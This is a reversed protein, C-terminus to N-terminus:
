PALRRIRWTQDPQRTYILRDHLRAPRGQWFEISTPILRYGGWFDPRPIPGNGFQATLQRVRDELAHRSPIVASQQSACASIQSERPRAHFLADSEQASTREIKGELRVQRELSEWFFLLTAKPNADIERGKRSDYNGAFVIGRSDFSQMLVMRASPTGDPGATALTMANPQPINAAIVDDLWAKFQAIPDAAIQSELLEGRTYDRRLNALDQLNRNDM